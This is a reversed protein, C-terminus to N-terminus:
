EVKPVTTAVKKESLAWALAGVWGLLTWGLFVNVVTIAAARNRGQAVMTPLFYLLLGFVLMLLILVDKGAEEKQEYSTPSSQHQGHYEPGHHKVSVVVIGTLLITVILIILTKKM